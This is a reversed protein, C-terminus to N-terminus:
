VYLLQLMDALGQVEEKNEGDEDEKNDEQQANVLAPKYGVPYWRGSARVQMVWEPGPHCVMICDAMVGIYKDLSRRMDVNFGVELYPLEKEGIGQSADFYCYKKWRHM